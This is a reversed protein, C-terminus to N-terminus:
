IELSDILKFLIKVLTQRPCNVSSPKKVDRVIASHGQIFLCIHVITIQAEHLRPGAAVSCGSKSRVVSQWSSGSSMGEYASALFAGHSLTLKRSDGLGAGSQVTVPDLQWRLAALHLNPHPISVGM